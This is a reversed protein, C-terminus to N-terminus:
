SKDEDGVVIQDVNNSLMRGELGYRHATKVTFSWVMLPCGSDDAVYM